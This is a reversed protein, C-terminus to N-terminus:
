MAEMYTPTIYIAFQYVGDGSFDTLVFYEVAGSVLYPFVNIYKSSPDIHTLRMSSNNKYVLKILLELNERPMRKGEWLASTDQRVSFNKNVINGAIVGAITNVRSSKTSEQYNAGYVEQILAM